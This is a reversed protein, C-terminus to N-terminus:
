EVRSGFFREEGRGGCRELVADAGDHESTPLAKLVCLEWQPITESALVKGGVLLEIKEYLSRGLDLMFVRSEPFGPVLPGVLPYRAARGDEFVIRLEDARAAVVGSLEFALERGTIGGSRSLCLDPCTPHGAACPGTPGSSRGGDLERTEDALCLKGSQARWAILLATAGGPRDLRLRAIARPAAGPAPKVAERYEQMTEQFERAEEPTPECSDARPKEDSRSDETGLCIRVEPESVGLRDREGEGFLLSGDAPEDIAEIPPPAELPETSGAREDQAPGCATLVLV